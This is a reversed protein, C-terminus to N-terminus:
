SGRPDSNVELLRSIEQDAQYGGFPRIVQPGFSLRHSAILNQATVGSQTTKLGDFILEFPIKGVSYSDAAAEPNLWGLIEELGPAPPVSASDPYVFDSDNRTPSWIRTTLVYEWQRGDENPWINELTPTLWSVSTPDTECGPILSCILVLFLAPIVVWKSSSM